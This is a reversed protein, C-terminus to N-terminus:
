PASKSPSKTDNTFAWCLSLVWFLFTWGLFVNLLGIPVIQNHERSIAVIIPVFYLGIIIFEM